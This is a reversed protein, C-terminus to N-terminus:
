ETKGGSSRDCRSGGFCSPPLTPLRGVVPSSRHVFWKAGTCSLRSRVGSPDRATPFLANVGICKQLDAERHDNGVRPRGRGNPGRMAAPGAPRRGAQIVARSHSWRLAVLVRCTSGQRSRQTAGRAPARVEREARIPRSPVMPLAIAEHCGVHSRRDALASEVTADRAACPAHELHERAHRRHACVGRRRSACCASMAHFVCLLPRSRRICM